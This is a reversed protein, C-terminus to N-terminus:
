VLQNRTKLSNTRQSASHHCCRDPGTRCGHRHPGGDVCTLAVQFKEVVNMAREVRETRWLEKMRRRADISLSAAKSGAEPKAPDGIAADGWVGNAYAELAAVSEFISAMTHARLVFDIGRFGDALLQTERAEAARLMHRASWLLESAFYGRVGVRVAHGSIAISASASQDDAPNNVGEHKCTRCCSRAGIARMREDSIARNIYQAYAMMGMHRGVCRWGIVGLREPRVPILRTASVWKLM